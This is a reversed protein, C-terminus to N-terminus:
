RPRRFRLGSIQEYELSSAGFLSKVYTKVDGAVTVLGTLPDYLEKDRLIRTNSVATYANIVTLNAAVMATHLTTLAAVTLDAENPGYGPQAGLLQILKHFNEIRSDFSMQSASISQKSEDEPTAPDDAVKPKARQGHLKRAISKVDDIVSPPVASAQVANVVRTIRKAFPAFLEDRTNVAITHPALATNVDALRGVAATHKTNLAALLIGPKTPNYAVGYGTVFSILDQLNAANKAHGTEYTPM